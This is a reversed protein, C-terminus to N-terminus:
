FFRLYTGRIIGNAKAGAWNAAFQPDPSTGRGAQIIAFTKKAAKVGAWDISGQYRSVDIGEVTPGAACVEAEVEGTQLEEASVLEPGCASVVTMLALALATRM